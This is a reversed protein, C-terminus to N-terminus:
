DRELVHVSHAIHVYFFARMSCFSNCAIRSSLPEYKVWGKGMVVAYPINGFAILMETHSEAESHESRSKLKSEITPSAVTAM